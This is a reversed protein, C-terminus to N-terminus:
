APILLVSGLQLFVFFGFIDVVGTIFISSSQAPDINLKKLLLPIAAGCLGAFGMTLLIALVVVVIVMPQGTVFFILLAAVSAVILGNLFGKVCERFCVPFTDRSQVDGMALSRILVALTQAGTNGGINAIVPMIVALITIEAISAEYIMVVGAALCATMLNVLLWPCRKVLSQRIPDHIGEDGGAGVMKQFDETAEEQLIDIVDDHTVLGILKGDADIVPLAFLNHEAMELAVEERDDDVSCVGDVQPNMIDQIAAGKPALLLDRMSVVGQLNGENDVVYLYYINELEERQRRVEFIADEISQNKNLVAMDTTMIGGATEPPYNLLYNIEEATESDLKGLLRNRDEEKLEFVVDAADDPDFGEIMALARSERMSGVVEAAAEEDMEALIDAAKQEELVRLVERREDISFRSIAKGILASSTQSLRDPDLGRFVDFPIELIEEDEYGQQIDPQTSPSDSM